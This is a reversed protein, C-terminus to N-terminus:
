KSKSFVAVDEATMGIMPDITLVNEMTLVYGAAKADQGISEVAPKDSVPQDIAVENFATKDIIVTEIVTEKVPSAESRAAAQDSTTTLGFREVLYTKRNAGQRSVATQFSQGEGLLILSQKARTIATYLLNRELMRHYSAVMPVIVSPFESGQSKHISMAYALTIKYWEARPYSVENGDFSMVIEDQKSETYKAPVLDTIVGIDGNFVDLSAENVLHLVKDDQRFITDQFLFELRDALPNFLNQLSKNVQNIGAVGKYMPILVQLDFPDNGRKMWASAIQEIYNPINVAKSEIYSRDAKKATFDAPLQGNKIDHALNTITSGEGQRFIKDLRITAFDPIKLLDAFVQGPGVSPLQDADGVFIVTMSPLIAAFLKNALWTDVMSFEDVILLSGSLDNGFDDELDDSNLGLQRHITAAPLGTLENMRRAARGTPALQVIPFVDDTYNDPNLNLHNLSAYAQVIGKIVTTKGTGPGGTLIFFQHTLAKYIAEKQLSDYRIELKAEVDGIITEFKDQALKTVKSNTLKDLRQYIGDEAFYLSNEFLKTGIAQLKGEALLVNIMEAVQDALIEVNRASELLDITQNLLDRAEIYTDGSELSHTLVTHILGAQIRADSTASIGEDEAIKDAKKFGIGKVDFVLQYPNEKIVDLTAEKYLDYIQFNLKSPLEYKALKSLIKEMGHNESLRRVFAALKESSLIGSLQEPTELIHDITDEPFTAVIKEATKKGIGPFHESSLYKVLGAGSTPVDKEYTTVKLQEGYKPHNTLEGFFKYSDGEVVDGIIGNVVIEDDKFDANTDTIALLLVKYFNAPNSFFVAEITGVFYLKDAM